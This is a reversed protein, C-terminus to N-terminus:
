KLKEVEKMREKEKEEQLNDFTKTAATCLIKANQM